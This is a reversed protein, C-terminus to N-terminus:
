RTAGRELTSSAAGGVVDVVAAGSTGTVSGGIGVDQTRRPSETAALRAGANWLAPAACPTLTELKVRGPHPM